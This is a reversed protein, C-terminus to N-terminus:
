RLSYSSVLDEVQSCLEFGRTSSQFNSWQIDMWYSLRSNTLCFLFNRRNTSLQRAWGFSIERLFILSTNERRVGRALKLRKIILTKFCFYRLYNSCHYKGAISFPSRHLFRWFWTGNMINWDHSYFIFCFIILIQKWM